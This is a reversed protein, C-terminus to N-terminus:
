GDTHDQVLRLDLKIVDPEIFPMLALSEPEAGVDDLAVGWGADRARRVAAILGAPDAVLARETIEVVVQLRQEAQRLVPELAAPPTTSLFRPEVNVFLALAAPLRAHLAGRFAAARCSWDVEAEVGLERALRFLEAPSEWPSGEAGRALAEYGVVEGSGLDVIPQYVSRVDHLAATVLEGGAPATSM